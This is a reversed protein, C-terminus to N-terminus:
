MSAAGRAPTRPAADIYYAIALENRAGAFYKTYVGVQQGEKLATRDFVQRPNGNVVQRIGPSLWIQQDRIKVWGEGFAPEEDAAASAERPGLVDDGMSTIPGQVYLYDDFRPEILLWAITAMAAGVIMFLLWNRYYWRKPPETAVGEGRLSMQRKLLDDVHASNAEDATIVIPGEQFEAQSM